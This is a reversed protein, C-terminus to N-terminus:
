VREQSAISPAAVPSAEEEVSRLKAKAGHGTCLGVFWVCCSCEDDVKRSEEKETLKYDDSLNLPVSGARFTSGTGGRLNHDGFVRPGATHSRGVVGLVAKHMMKPDAQEEMRRHVTRKRDFKKINFLYERLEQRSIDGNGGTDIERMLKSADPPEQGTGALLKLIEPFEKLARSLETRSIVGNNNADMTSFLLQLSCPDTADNPTSSIVFLWGVSAM